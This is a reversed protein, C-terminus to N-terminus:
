VSWDVFLCHRRNRSCVYSRKLLLERTKTSTAYLLYRVELEMWVGGACVDRKSHTGDIRSQQRTKGALRVAGQTAEGSPLGLGLRTAYRSFYLLQRHSDAILAAWNVRM